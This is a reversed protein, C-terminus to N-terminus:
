SKEETEAAEAEPKEEMEESEMEESEGESAEGEEMAEGEEEGEMAEGEGEEGEGPEAPAVDLDNAGGTEMAFEPTIPQLEPHQHFLPFERGIERLAVIMGRETAMFIRDSRENLVRVKFHEMPLAGLLSGDARSLIALNNRRDIGYVRTPSLSIFHEVHPRWWLQRGTDATLKFMGGHEPMLYLENAIAIPARRIMLGSSFQWNYGGNEINISYVNYDESAVILANKYRAMPASLPADTEFQFMLERDDKTVSYLSGDRSAFCVLRSTPIAPTVISKSTKYRWLVTLYSWQPMMQKASLEGLKVIDFAYMSGDLFGLFLKRDDTVPSSTPQGPLKLDWMISGDTKRLGFLTMGTVVLVLDKTTTAPYIARDSPGVQVAWLKKGSECDFATVTGSSSQAYLLNEDVTLYLLKDRASNTVAHGWWARSLGYAYLSRDSPIQTSITGTFQASAATTMLVLLLPLLRWSNSM